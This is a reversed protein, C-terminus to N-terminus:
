APHRFDHVHNEKSTRAAPLRIVFSSGRTTSDALTLSGGHSSMLRRALNLGIGQGRSSNGRVGWDFIKHRAETPVGPGEDSVSIEVTSDAHTVAISSSTGGHIAANDILINLAEAVDDPSAEVTAGTPEWSISRGQAEHFTLLVDLTTDLDVPGPEAPPQQNILRELRDLETRIARELRAHTAAEVNHDGLLRSASAAGAITSRIEHLQERSGRWSSEIELLSGELGASRERQDALAERLMVITASTWLAAAGTLALATALDTVRNDVLGSRAVHAVGILCITVVLRGRAWRPLEDERWVLSAIALHGAAITVLMSVTLLTPPPSVSTALEAVQLATLAVGLVVGMLLPDPAPVGRASLIVLALAAGTVVLDVASVWQLAAIGRDAETLGLGSSVLVQSALVVMACAVWGHHPRPVTLWHLYFVLTATLLLAGAVMGIVLAATAAGRSSPVTALLVAVPVGTLAAALLGEQWGDFVKHNTLQRM